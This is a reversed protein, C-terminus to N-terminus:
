YHTVVYKKFSNCPFYGKKGKKDPATLLICYFKLTVGTGLGMSVNCHFCNSETSENLYALLSDALMHLSCVSTRLLFNQTVIRVWYYMYSRIVTKSLIVPPAKFEKSWYVTNRLDYSLTKKRGFCDLVDIDM